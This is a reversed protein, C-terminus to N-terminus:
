RRAKFSAPRTVAVASVQGAYKTCHAHNELFDVAWNYINDRLELQALKSTLTVHRVSDFAKSFDFSYVHVFDSDILMSRVTHLM